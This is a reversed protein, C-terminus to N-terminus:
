PKEEIPQCFIEIDKQSAGFAPPPIESLQGKTIADEFTLSEMIYTVPVFSSWNRPSISQLYNFFNDWHKDSRERLDDLKKTEARSQAYIYGNYKYSLKDWYEILKNRAEFAKKQLRLFREKQKNKM